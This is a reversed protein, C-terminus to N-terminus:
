RARCCLKTLVLRRHGYRCRARVKNMVCSIMDDLVKTSIASRRTLVAPFKSGLNGPLKNLVEADYGNFMYAEGAKKRVSCEYTGCWVFFVGDDDIVMRPGHRNLYDKAKVCSSGACRFDFTLMPRTMVLIFSDPKVEGKKCWKCPPTPGDFHNQYFFEPLWLLLRGWQLRKFDGPTPNLQLNPDDPEVMMSSFPWTGKVTTQAYQNSGTRNIAKQLKEKVKKDNLSSTHMLHRCKTLTTMRVLM